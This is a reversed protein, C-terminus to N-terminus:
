HPAAPNILIVLPRMAARARQAGESVQSCKGIIGGAAIVWLQRSTNREFDPAPSDRPENYGSVVLMIQAALEDEFLDLRDAFRSLLPLYTRPVFWSFWEVFEEPSDREFDQEAGYTVVTEMAIQLLYLEHDFVVALRQSEKTRATISRQDALLDRDIQSKLVRDNNVFAVVIAAVTAIAGFWEGINGKEPGAVDDYVGWCLGGGVVALSGIAIGWAFGVGEPHSRM